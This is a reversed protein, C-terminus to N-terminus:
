IVEGITWWWWWWWWWRIKWGGNEAVEVVVFKV